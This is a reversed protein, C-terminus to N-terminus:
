GELVACHFGNDEALAIVQQTDFWEGQIRLIHDCDDLDFSISICSFHLLLISKMREADCLQQMNTKFVEIM